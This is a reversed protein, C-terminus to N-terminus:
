RAPGKKVAPAKRAAAKKTPPADLGAIHDEVRCALADLRDDMRAQIERTTTARAEHRDHQRNLTKVLERVVTHCWVVVWAAALMVVTLLAVGAWQAANV